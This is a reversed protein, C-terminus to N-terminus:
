HRIMTVQNRTDTQTTGSREIQSSAVELENWSSSTTATATTDTLLRMPSGILPRDGDSFTIVPLKRSRSSSEARSKMVLNCSVIRYLFLLPM